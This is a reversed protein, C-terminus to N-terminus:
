RLRWMLLVDAPPVDAVGVGVGVAVTVGVTVGVTVAVGSGSVACRLRALRSAYVHPNSNFGGFFAFLFFPPGMPAWLASARRDWAGGSPGGGCVCARLFFSFLFFFFSFFRGHGRLFKKKARNVFFVFSISSSVHTFSRSISTADAIAAHPIGVDSLTCLMEDLWLTETSSM